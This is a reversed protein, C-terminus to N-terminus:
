FGSLYPPLAFLSFLLFNPLILKQVFVLYLSSPTGFASVKKQLIFDYGEKMRMFTADKDTKSYSSHDGLKVIQKEYKELRPLFDEQLQLVQKREIKDM